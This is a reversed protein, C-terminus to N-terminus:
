VHLSGESSVIDLCQEIDKKMQRLLLEESTFPIVGRLRKFFEIEINDNYLNGQFGILYSEIKQRHGGFTPNPGINVAAPWSVGKNSVRSVRAAYVGEGPVLTQPYGLNATPYGLSSGRHEGHIVSGSLLYRRTLFHNAQELSGERLLSRIMSSSVIRDEMKQSPIIEMDLGSRACFSQLLAASGERNRGFNFNEGEVLTCANFTERIYHDFFNSATMELFNRTTPLLILADPQFEAILDIKRPTTCLLPPALQPRIVMAPLPDFTLIVSPVQKQRAIEVLRNLILRHGYHVGDFKGISLVGGKLSSPILGKFHIIEM